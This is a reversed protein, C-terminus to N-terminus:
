STLILLIVTQLWVRVFQEPSGIKFFGMVFFPQHLPELPLASPAGTLGIAVFYFLIFFEELVDKLFCKISM